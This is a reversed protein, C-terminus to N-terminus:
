ETNWKNISDHSIDELGLEYHIGAPVSIWCVAGMIVCILFLEEVRIKLVIIGKPLLLLKYLM